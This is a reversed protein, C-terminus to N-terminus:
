GFVTEPNNLLHTTQRLADFADAGATELASQLAFHANVLLRASRLDHVMRREVVFNCFKSVGEAFAALERKREALAAQWMLAADHTVRALAGADLGRFPADGSTRTLEGLSENLRRLADGPDIYGPQARRLREAEPRLSVVMTALRAVQDDFVEQDIHDDFRHLSARHLYWMLRLSFPSLQKVRHLGDLGTGVSPARLVMEGIREVLAAEADRERERLYQELGKFLDGLLARSEV